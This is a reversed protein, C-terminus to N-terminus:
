VFIKNEILSFSFTRYAHTIKALQMAGPLGSKILKFLIFSRHVRARSLM